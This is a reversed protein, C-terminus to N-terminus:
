TAYPLQSNMLNGWWITVETPGWAWTLKEGRVRWVDRDTMPWNKKGGQSDISGVEQIAGWRELSNRCPTRKQRTRKLWIGLKELYKWRVRVPEVDRQARTGLRHKSIRESLISPIWDVGAHSLGCQYDRATYLHESSNLTRLKMTVLRQLLGRGGRLFFGGCCDVGLTVGLYSELCQLKRSPPWIATM